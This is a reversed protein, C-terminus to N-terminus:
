EPFVLRAKIQASNNNTQVLLEASINMDNNNELTLYMINKSGHSKPASCNLIIHQM